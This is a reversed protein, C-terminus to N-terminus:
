KALFDALFGFQTVTKFESGEPFNYKTRNEAILANRLKPINHKEKHQDKYNEFSLKLKEWLKADGTVEKETYEPLIHNM